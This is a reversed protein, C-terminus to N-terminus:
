SVEFDFTVTQGIQGPDTPSLYVRRIPEGDDRQVTDSVPNMTGPGSGLEILITRGPVPEGVADTDTVICSLRAGGAIRLRRDVVPNIFEPVGEVDVIVLFSPVVTGDDADIVVQFVVRTPLPIPSDPDFSLRVWLPRDGHVSGTTPVSRISRQDGPGADGYPSRGALDRSRAHLFDQAGDAGFTQSGLENLSPAEEEDSIDTVDFHEAQAFDHIAMAIDCIIPGARIDKVYCRYEEIEVVTDNYFYGLRHKSARRRCQDADFSTFLGNPQFLWYADSVVPTSPLEEAFTMTNTGEDYDIIERVENLNTDLFVLWAGTFDGAPLGTDIVVRDNTVSTFTGEHDAIPTISRQGGLSANPDGQTGGFTATALRPNFLDENAM